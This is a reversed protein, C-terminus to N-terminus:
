VALETMEYKDKGIFIVSLYRVDTRGAFQHSRRYKELQERAKDRATQLATDRRLGAKKVYKIEWVWEHPIEPFLHSRQLWVDTYGQTVELETIPVFMKSQFLTGLLIIKIQKEDFRELDRNSLRILINRSVYDVFPVPNGRYALERVALRLQTFDILVDENRDKILRLIYDWYITRISYNPIKLRLLGEEQRDITLLGMYFLLSVFYENDHLQDISFKPIIESVIGNNQIIEMLQTSNQENMILSRLRGYDTKLNEDVINEPVKGSRLIQNFFYLMMSPNYVRHEGDKHFLYGNYFLEMDVNILAPDVGTEIMLAKVEDATFGLMENYLPDLSLSSAINFGSTMDDLMIPTIGTIMIGNIVTETGEKLTEYFDRVIGNARVMKRYVDDGVTTGLAMLDNAFHDYEDIIVYIKRKASLAARFAVLLKGTLSMQEECEKKYKAADPIYNAHEDLFALLSQQIKGIFSIQFDNETSTNLGSFNFKLVLYSNKMPTPHKGIYLDGFLQEFKDAEAIDYYHSLMSFFLSKGFKRPRIFFLNRNPENELLEIFRTKDVYAYGGTRVSEFDSNGYPLRKCKKAEM